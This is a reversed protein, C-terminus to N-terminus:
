IKMIVEESYVMKGYKSVVDEVGGAQNERLLGFTGLFICFVYWWILIFKKEKLRGVLNLSVAWFNRSFYSVM